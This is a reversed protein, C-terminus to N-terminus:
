FINFTYQFQNEIGNLVILTDDAFLSIKASHGCIDLGSFLASDRLTNALCKVYLILFTPSLPDGQRICRPISFKKYLFNSNHMFPMTYFTKLWQVVFSGFCYKPVLCFM